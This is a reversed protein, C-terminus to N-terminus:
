LFSIVNSHCYFVSPSVTAFLSLRASIFYCDFPLWMFRHCDFVFLKLVQQFNLPLSIPSSHCHLSMYIAICNCNLPLLIAIPQYDSVCTFSLLIFTIHHILFILLIFKTLISHCQRSLQPLLIAFALSEFSFPFVKPTTYYYHQHFQLSTAISPRDIPLFIKHCFFPFSTVLFHCHLKFQTENYHFVIISLQYLISYTVLSHCFFLIIHTDFLLLLQSVFFHYDFQLLTSIPHYQILMYNVYFSVYINGFWIRYRGFVFINRDM